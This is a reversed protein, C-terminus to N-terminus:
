GADEEGVAAQIRREGLDCAVNSEIGAADRALSGPELLGAQDGRRPHPALAVNAGVRRRGVVLRQSVQESAGVPRRLQDAGSESLESADFPRQDIAGPRGAIVTPRSRRGVVDVDKHDAIGVAALEGSGGACKGFLKPELDVRM